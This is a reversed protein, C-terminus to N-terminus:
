AQLLYINSGVGFIKVVGNQEAVDKESVGNQARYQFRNYRRQFDTYAYDPPTTGVLRFGNKAYVEGEGFRLDAYSLITQGDFEEKTASMLRSFGGRVHSFKKSCSRALEVVDGYKKVFPHRFSVAQILEGCFELGIASFFRVNGAIHNSAFFEEFKTKNESCCKVVTCKRADYSKESSGLANLIISEVVDRKEEWEDGFIQILRIGNKKAELYKQKHYDNVLDKESHWYLGNYEIGINREPLFIDMEKKGIVGRRNREIIIDPIKAKIFEAIEKEQSSTVLFQKCSFCGAGRMLNNLNPHIIEGCILCKCDLPKLNGKYESYPTLVEIKNQIKIKEVYEAYQFEKLRGIKKCIPCGTGRFIAYLTKEIIQGCKECKFKHKDSPDSVKSILSFGM